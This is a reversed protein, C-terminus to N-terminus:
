DGWVKRDLIRGEWYDAEADFGVKRDSSGVRKIVEGDAYLVGDVIEWVYSFATGGHESIYEKMLRATEVVDVDSTVPLKFHNIFIVSIAADEFSEGKVGAYENGTMLMELIDLDRSDVTKVECM